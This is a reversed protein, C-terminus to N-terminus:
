PRPHPKASARAQAGGGAGRARLFQGRILGTQPRAMGFIFVCRPAALRNLFVPLPFIWRLWAKWPCVRVFFDGPRLALSAVSVSTDFALSFVTFLISGYKYSARSRAGPM